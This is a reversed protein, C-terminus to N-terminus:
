MRIRSALYWCFQMVYVMATHVTFFEQHHVSSSDSVHVTKNWFYIQSILADLQEQQLFKDRYLDGSRWLQKPNNTNKQYCKFGKKKQKNTIQLPAPFKFRRGGKMGGERGGEQWWITETVLLHCTLILRWKLLSQDYNHHDRNTRYQVRIVRVAESTRWDSKRGESKFDWNWTRWHLIKYM